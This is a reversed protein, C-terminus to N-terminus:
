PLWAFNAELRRFRTVLAEWDLYDQEAEFTYHEQRDESDWIQKYAEFSQGYKQEYQKIAANIEVLKNRAYDRILLVLAVDNRPEGTLDTLAQGIERPLMFVSM